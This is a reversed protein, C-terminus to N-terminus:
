THHVVNDASVVLWENTSYEYEGRFALVKRGRSVLKRAVFPANTAAGTQRPANTGRSTHYEDVSAAKSLVKVASVQRSSNFVEM